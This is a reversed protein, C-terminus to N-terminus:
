GIYSNFYTVINKHQIEKLIKIENKIENTLERTNQIIKIALIDRKEKDYAKYVLGFGGYGILNQMEYNEVNFCLSM